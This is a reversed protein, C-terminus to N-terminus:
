RSNNTLWGKGFGWNMILELVVITMYMAGCAFMGCAVWSFMDHGITLQRGHIDLWYGVGGCIFVIGAIACPKRFPHTEKPRESRAKM